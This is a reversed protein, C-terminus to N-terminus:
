LFLKHTTESDASVFLDEPMRFRWLEFLNSGFGKLETLFSETELSKERVLASVSPDFYVEASVVIDNGTSFGELRAALNVTSGFYDLRDNLTVAICAGYHIGVKLRLPLNGDEGAALKKQAKLIARIASDPRPFVAMVADGITKVIAGGEEAIASKLVDFHNMVLGFAPADGIERYLSTSGRLDTFLITLRGVSIQEGPRLAESSFLDRFLQMTTVEAATVVQDSWALRELIFLQEEDTVNKLTLTANPKMIPEVNPWDESTATLTLHDEGDLGVRVYQGGRLMLTRVRYRGKELIPQLTGEEHPQMLQQMAIHPTVQPGGTCFDGVSLERISANPKFTLEVSREFNVTFDINCADCHVQPTLGSLSSSSQKAGRCLPCLLDWQLDLLGLRTALLFVTLAERRSVGWTDALLYPRMKALTIEDGTKILEILRDVLAPKVDENLLRERLNMLREEGGPAFEVAEALALPMAEGKVARQDYDQFVKEFIRGSNLKIQLPVAIRGVVNRPRIWVNHSLLTGGPISKMETLIRSQAVLGKTYHRVASFYYPRVWEYPEEEWEFPMGFAYIRLLRRANVTPTDSTRKELVGAGTDHNFRNTDSVFPWLEEPTSKLQWEWHFHLEPYAM